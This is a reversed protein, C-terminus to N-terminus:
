EANNYVPFFCTCIYTINITLIYLSLLELVFTCIELFYQYLITTLLIILSNSYNNKMLIDLEKKKM